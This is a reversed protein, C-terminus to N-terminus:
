PAHRAARVGQPVSEDLRDLEVEWRENRRVVIGAEMLHLLLERVFFPVGETQTHLRHAFERATADWFLKRGTRFAAGRGVAAM